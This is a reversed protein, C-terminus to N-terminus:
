CQSHIHQSLAQSHTGIDPCTPVFCTNLYLKFFSLRTFPNFLGRTAFHPRCRVEDCDGEVMAYIAKKVLNTGSVSSDLDTVACLHVVTKLFSNM